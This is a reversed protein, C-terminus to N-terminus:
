SGGSGQSVQPTEGSSGPDVLPPASRLFESFSESAADPLSGSSGYPVMGIAEWDLVGFTGLSQVQGVLSQEESMPAPSDPEEDEELGKLGRDLLSSSDAAISRRQQRLRSLRSLAESLQREADVIEKDIKDCASLNAIVVCKLVFDVSDPCLPISVLTPWTQAVVDNGWGLM